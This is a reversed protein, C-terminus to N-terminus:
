STASGFTPLQVSGHSGSQPPSIACSSNVPALSVALGAAGHHHRLHMEITAINEAPTKTTSLSAREIWCAVQRQRLRNTETWTVSAMRELGAQVNSHSVVADTHQFLSRALTLVPTGTYFNDVLTGGNLTVTFRAHTTLLNISSSSEFLLWGCASENLRLLLRRQQAKEPGDIAPHIKVVLPLTRSSCYSCTQNLLDPYTIHSFKNVSVDDFKQTPVFVYRSNFVHAPVDLISQQPRKSSDLELHRQVLLRCRSDDYGRQVLSNLSRVYFSDGLLGRPDVIVTGRTFGNEYVVRPVARFYNGNYNSWLIAVDTRGSPRCPARMRLNDPKGRECKQTGFERILNQLLSSNRVRQVARVTGQNIPLMQVCHGRLKLERAVQILTTWRPDGLESAISDPNFIYAVTVHLSM